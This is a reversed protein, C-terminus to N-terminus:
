EKAPKAKPKRAKATEKGATKVKGAAEAKGPAKAESGDKGSRKGAVATGKKGAKGTKGAESRASAGAKKSSATRSSAAKSSAVKSSAAKGVGKKGRAEAPGQAQKRDSKGLMIELIVNDADKMAKRAILGINRITNEVDDDIIGNTGPVCIDDLAMVAAQMAASTGSAVKLACGLKAGDCVMGTLNGAMNQIAFKIQEKSGGLLYCVGCAAGTSAVVVGCAASLRGFGHKIHIATLNSIMLARALMEESAKLKEAVALVPTMATIGQNGSGSNSMAPLMAGSMRADSAAATVAMAYDTYENMAKHAKMWELLTAGIGMGSKHALGYSALERNLRAKDLIFKIKSFPQKAAFEYIEDMTIHYMDEEDKAGKASAKKRFVAKGDSEVLVFNQHEEEIVARTSHEGAVCVADAYVKNCDKVIEIEVRKEAVYEQAKGVHSPKVGSLVELEKSSDGVIAGLASGIYLGTLPTGPIGVGMGNKYINLSTKVLVKEPVLDKKGAAKRLEEAARAVALAVAIPETCGLAPVVEKELLRYMDQIKKASLMRRNKQKESGTTRLGKRCFRAQTGFGGRM